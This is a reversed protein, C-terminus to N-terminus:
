ECALDMIIGASRGEESGDLDVDEVEESETRKWENAPALTTGAM